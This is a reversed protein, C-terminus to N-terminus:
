GKPANKMKVKLDNIEKKVHEIDKKLSEIQSKCADKTHTEKLWAKQHALDEKYKNLLRTKSQIAEKYYSKSLGSGM